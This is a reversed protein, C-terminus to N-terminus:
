TEDEENKYSYLFGFLNNAYVQLEYVLKNWLGRKSPDIILNFRPSKGKYYYRVEFTRLNVIVSGNIKEGIYTIKGRLIAKGPEIGWLQKLEFYLITATGLLDESHFMYTAKFPEIITDSDKTYDAKPSGQISDTTQTIPCSQESTSITDKAVGTKDPSLSIAHEIIKAFEERTLVM